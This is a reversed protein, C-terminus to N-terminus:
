GRHAGARAELRDFEALPLTVRGLMVRSHRPDGHFDSGGSVALGLQRAMGLYRSVEPAAHDSHYAELAALGEGAWAAIHHDCGMLGPHALSAVGGAQAILRVVEGPRAGTRPVYAPQGDGILTSFAAAVDPVHGAAVLAQAIAPRGVAWDPRSTLPALVREVDIPKGLAALQRAM